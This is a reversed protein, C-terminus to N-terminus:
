LLTVRLSLIAGRDALSLWMRVALDLSLLPNWLCSVLTGEVASSPLLGSVRSGHFLVRDEPFAPFWSTSGGPQRFDAQREAACLGERSPLCTLIIKESFWSPRNGWFWPSHFSCANVQGQRALDGDRQDSPVVGLFHVGGLCPTLATSGSPSLSARALAGARESVLRMVKRM